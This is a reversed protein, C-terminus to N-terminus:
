SSYRSSEDANQNAEINVLLYSKQVDHVLALVVLELLVCTSLDRVDYQLRGAHANQEELVEFLKAVIRASRLLKQIWFQEWIVQVWLIYDSSTVFSYALM